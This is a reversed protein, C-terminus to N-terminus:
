PTRKPDTSPLAAHADAAPGAPGEPRMAQQEIRARDTAPGHVIKGGLFAAWGALVAGGVGVVLVFRRLRGDDAQALSFAAFVAQSVLLVTTWTAWSRHTQILSPEVFTRTAAVDAATLGTVYSPVAMVGAVLLALIGWRELGERGAVWGGLGVLAGAVVLVVTFPVAVLHLYEWTPGEPTM